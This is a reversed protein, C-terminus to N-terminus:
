WFSFTLMGESNPDIVEEYDIKKLPRADIVLLDLRAKDPCARISPKFYCPNRKHFDRLAACFDLFEREEPPLSAKNGRAEFKQRFSIDTM